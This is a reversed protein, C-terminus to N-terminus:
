FKQRERLLNKKQLKRPNKNNNNAQKEKCPPWPTMSGKIGSFFPIHM